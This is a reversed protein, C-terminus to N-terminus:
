NGICISISFDLTLINSSKYQPVSSLKLDKPIVAFSVASSIDPTLLSIEPHPPPLPPEDHVELFASFSFSTISQSFFDRLSASSASL